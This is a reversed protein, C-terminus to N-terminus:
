IDHLMGFYRLFPVELCFSLVMHPTNPMEADQIREISGRGPVFEFSSSRGMDLIPVVTLSSVGDYCPARDDSSFGRRPYYPTTEGLISLPGMMPVRSKMM